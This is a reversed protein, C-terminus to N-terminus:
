DSKEYEYFEQLTINLSINKADFLPKFFQIFTEINMMGKTNYMNFVCEPKINFVENWPRQIFYVKITEWDYRLSLIVAMAAGASTGYISEINDMSWINNEELVRLIGLQKIATPGGGSFVIHKITM